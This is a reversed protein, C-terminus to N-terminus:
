LFQFTTKLKALLICLFACMEVNFKFFFKGGPRGNQTHVVAGREVCVRIGSDEGTFVAIRM